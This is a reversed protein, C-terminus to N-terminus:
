CVKIRKEEDAQIVLFTSIPVYRQVIQTQDLEDKIEIRTKLMDEDVIDMCDGDEIHSDIIFMGDEMTEFEFDIHFSGEELNLREELDRKLEGFTKNEDFEYHIVDGSPIFYLEFGIM